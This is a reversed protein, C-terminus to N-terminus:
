IYTNNNFKKRLIKIDEPKNLIFTEPMIISANKRGFKQELLHWIGNKSVIKDCGSIGFILQNSNQPTVNMLEREVLNYGCPIYLDWNNDYTKLINNDVFINKLIGNVKKENCRKYKKSSSFHETNKLYLILFVLLIILIIKFKNNLIIEM